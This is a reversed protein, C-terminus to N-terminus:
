ASRRGFDAAVGADALRRRLYAHRVGHESVSVADAGVAALVRALVLAGAPLIGARGPDLAPWTARVAAPTTELRRRLAALAAASLGHGHVRRPDWRVLGLDLAALATATGGSAAVAAGAARAADVVGSAALAADVAATARAVEVASPPDGALYTETLGLGGLPVSGAAVIAEGRGLTLETTGGGVDVVLLASTAPLAAAVAAYALRAEEEGSVIAIPVGSAAALEGVFAAGDRARRAAATALGWVDTAGAARARAAFDLVAARTEARAAPDLAGGDHLGRGLRTTALAADRTRVSGQVDVEVTLLLVSNSGVDIVAATRAREASV